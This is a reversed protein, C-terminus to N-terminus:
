KAKKIISYVTNGLKNPTSEFEGRIEECFKKLIEYSKEVFINERGILRMSAKVKDGQELFKKAQKAKFNFDHEDIKYSLKIEKLDSTRSNTKQLKLKKEQEFRYKDFNILKCVPPVAKDSIEVLDLDYEQALFKAQDLSVVGYSKGDQNIM